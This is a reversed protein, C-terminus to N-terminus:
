TRQVRGSKLGYSFSQFVGGINKQLFHGRNCHRHQAKKTWNCELYYSQTCQIASRWLSISTALFVDGWKRLPHVTHMQCLVASQTTTKAFHLTANYLPNFYLALCPATYQAFHLTCHAANQTCLKTYCQPLAIHMPFPICQPNNPLFQLACHLVPSPPPLRGHHATEPPSDGGQERSWFGPVFLICVNEM